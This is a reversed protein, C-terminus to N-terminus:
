RYLVKWLVKLVLYPMTMYAIAMCRYKRSMYKNVIERKSERLYTRLTRFSQEDRSESMLLANVVGIIRRIRYAELISVIDPDKELTIMKDVAAIATLWKKNFNGNTASNERELIDWGPFPLYVMGNCRKIAEYTFLGDEGFHLTEDFCLKKDELIKAPFLKYCSSQASFDDNGYSKIVEKVTAVVIETDCKARKRELKGDKLYRVFYRDCAIICDENKEAEAVLREVTDHELWDDADLFLFYDHTMLSLAKNRAASVGSNKQQISIVREDSGFKNIVDQTNDVSGDNVIILQVNRYTQNLVSNIGKEIYNEVNYAPMIVAVSRNSM